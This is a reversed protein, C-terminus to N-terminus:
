VKGYYGSCINVNEEVVDISPRGLVNKWNFGGEGFDKSIAAVAPKIIERMYNMNTRTYKEFPTKLDPAFAVMSVARDKSTKLNKAASYLFLCDGFYGECLFKATEPKASAAKSNSAEFKANDFQEFAHQGDAATLKPRDEANRSNFYDVVAFTRKTQEDNDGSIKIKDDDRQVAKRLTGDVQGIFKMLLGFYQSLYKNRLQQDDPIGAIAVTTSSSGTNRAVAKRISPGNIKLVNRYINNRILKLPLELSEDLELMIKGKM